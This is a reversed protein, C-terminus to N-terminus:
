CRIGWIQLRTTTYSRPIPSHRLYQTSERAYDRFHISALQIQLVIYGCIITTNMGLANRELM